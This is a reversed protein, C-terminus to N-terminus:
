GSETLANEPWRNSNSPPGKVPLQVQLVWSTRRAVGRNEYLIMNTNALDNMQGETYVGYIGTYIPGPLVHSQFFDGYSIM